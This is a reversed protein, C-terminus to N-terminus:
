PHVKDKAWFALFLSKQFTRIVRRKGSTPMSISEIDFLRIM